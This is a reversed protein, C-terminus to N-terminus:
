VASVADIHTNAFNRRCTNVHQLFRGPCCWWCRRSRSCLRCRALRRWHFPPNIWHAHRCHFLPCWYWFPLPHRQRYREHSRILCHHYRRACCRRLHHLVAYQTQPSQRFVPQTPYTLTSLQPPLSYVQQNTSKNTPHFRLNSTPYWSKYGM